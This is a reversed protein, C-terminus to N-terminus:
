SGDDSHGEMEELLKKGIGGNNSNSNEKKNYFTWTTYHVGTLQCGLNNFDPAGCCTWYQQKKDWFGTPRHMPCGTERGERGGIPKYYVQRGCVNCKTHLIELLREKYEPTGKYSSHTTRLMPDREFALRRFMEPFQNRVFPPDSTGEDEGDEKKEWVSDLTKLCDRWFKDEDTLYRDQKISRLTHLALLYLSQLHYYKAEILLEQLSNEETPLV